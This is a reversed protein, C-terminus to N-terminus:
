KLNQKLQQQFESQITAKKQGTIKLHKAKELRDKVTTWHAAFADPSYSQFAITIAAVFLPVVWLPYPKNKM